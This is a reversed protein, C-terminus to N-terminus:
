IKEQQGLKPCAPCGKTVGFDHVMDRTAYFQKKKTGQRHDEGMIRIPITDTHTDMSMPDKRVKIHPVNEKDSDGAKWDWPTALIGEIEEKNWKIEETM